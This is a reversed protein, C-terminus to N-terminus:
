CDCGADITLCLAFTRDLGGSVSGIFLIEIDINTGNMFGTTDGPLTGRFGWDRTGLAPTGYETMTIASTFVKRVLNGIAAETAIGSGMTMTGADTDISSITKSEVAGSDLVIEVLDGVVFASVNSVNWIASA